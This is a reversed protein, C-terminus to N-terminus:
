LKFKSNSSDPNELPLGPGFYPQGPMSGAPMKPGLLWLINDLHNLLHERIYIGLKSKGMDTNSFYKGGPFYNFMNIGNMSNWDKDVWFTNGRKDSMKFYTIGDVDKSNGVYGYGKGNERSIENPAVKQKPERNGSCCDKNGLNNDNKKIDSFYGGDETHSWVFGIDIEEGYGGKVIQGNHEDEQSMSEGSTTTSGAVSYPEMGDPDIFRIPNDFAYNYPSHRTMKEAMPDMVFWRGIAPDYMRAGYDYLNVGLHGNAEKGNYLYPNVKIGAYQYGLGSLEVGWPDYHSEQVILPGTSLIRFQDFWVDDFTENM